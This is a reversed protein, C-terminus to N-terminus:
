RQRPPEDGFRELAAIYRDGFAVSTVDKFWWRSPETSWVGQPDIQLFDFTRDGLHDVRGIEFDDDEAERYVWLLKSHAAAARLVDRTDADPPLRFDVPPRGGLGAVAREIYGGERDETVDVIDALRLVDYGAPHVGEELSQLVVWRDGVGVVFGRVRDSWGEQGRVIEVPCGSREAERLAQVIEGRKRVPPESVEGDESPPGGTECTCHSVLKVRKPDRRPPPEEGFRELATTYRDGVVVSAVDKYWWRSPEAPHSPHASWVGRSNILMLDFKRDGLHDLRGVLRLSEDETELYVSLLDSHAAAARLVEKIGADSPLSFDVQPRGGLGAVAREVFGGRRDDAVDTIDALRPIDYGEVHAAQVLRQLVVWREGVSVVFGRVHHSWDEQDSDITVPSRSREAKRLAEVVDRRRMVSYPPLADTAGQETEQDM